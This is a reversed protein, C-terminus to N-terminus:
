VDYGDVQNCDFLFEEINIELLENHRKELKKVVAKAAMLERASETLAAKAKLICNENIGANVEAEFDKVKM